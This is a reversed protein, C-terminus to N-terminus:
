IPVSELLRTVPRGVLAPSSTPDAWVVERLFDRFEAAREAGDFDLEVVIRTPDDLPHAIRHSRVGANRRADAFREFAATWTALDTIEHEILLTVM